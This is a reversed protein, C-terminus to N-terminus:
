APRSALMGLAHHRFLDRLLSIEAGHHIVERNVHLVLAAMPEADYPAERPGCPRGLGDAGLARVGAIWRAYEEDLQELAQNATWAYTFNRWSESENNGIDPGGFHSGNRAAFGVIMHALRWAITTVPAPDPAPYAFEFTFEGTGVAIPATSVGRQRVSWCGAVPEWFYEEDTLSDLRPRLAARWHFDLQEALQLNWDIDM